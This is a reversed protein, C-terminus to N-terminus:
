HVSWVTCFLSDPSGRRIICKLPIHPQPIYCTYELPLIPSFYYRCLAWAQVLSLNYRVFGRSIGTCIVGRLIYTGHASNWLLFDLPWVLMCLFIIRTLNQKKKKPPSITETSFFYFYCLINTNQQVLGGQILRFLPAFCTTRLITCKHRSWELLFANKLWVVVLCCSDNM